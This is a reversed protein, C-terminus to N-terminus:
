KLCSVIEKLLEATHDLKEKDCSKLASLLSKTEAANEDLSDDLGFIIEDLSMKFLEAIAILTDLSPTQFGNEIKSYSSYSIELKDAAKEQTYGFSKRKEKIRLAMGKLQEKDM